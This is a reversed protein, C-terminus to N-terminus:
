HTLKFNVRNNTNLRNSWTFCFNASTPATFVLEKIKPTLQKAIVYYIIENEQYHVDFTIPDIAEFSFHVLQKEKLNVCEKVVRNAEVSYSKNFALGDSSQLPLAAIFFCIGLSFTPLTNRLNLRTLNQM